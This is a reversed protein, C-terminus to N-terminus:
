KAIVIELYESPLVMTGDHAVNLSAVLEMLDATLAAQGAADLAAFTRNMPGYYAKFVELWNEPSPSRFHFNKTTAEISRAGPFLEKLRAETGWLSPPNLGAPPPVYKGIRKFIQGVFGAPTWCALGIRGGPRVVRFMEAAAATQNPAFMVGVTSLAADFEGDAFPLNEADAVQFDMTLGEAAARLKGRELLSPVYDTSTVLCGRRAAALSANGSGAAVDLVRWGSRVDMTECLLEAMLVIATGVVAYDGTAWAAQQRVKIANFDPTPSPTTSM